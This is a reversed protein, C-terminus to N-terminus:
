FLIIFHKSISVVTLPFLKGHFTNENNNDSNDDMDLVAEIQLLAIDMRDILSFGIAKTTYIFMVIRHFIFGEILICVM